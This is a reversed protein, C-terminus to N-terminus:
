KEVVWLDTDWRRNPRVGNLVLEIDDLADRYGGLYGESSLGRSFLSDQDTQEMIIQNVVKRAMRLKWKIGRGM